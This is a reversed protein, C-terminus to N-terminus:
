EKLMIKEVWREIVETYHQAREFMPLHGVGNLLDLDGKPARECIARSQEPPVIPDSDGAIALTPM